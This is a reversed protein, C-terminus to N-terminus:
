SFVCVHAERAGVPGPCIGRAPQSADPCLGMRCGSCPAAGCALGFVGAPEGPAQLTAAPRGVAPALFDVFGSWLAVLLAVSVVAGVAVALVHSSSFLQPQILSHRCTGIGSRCHGPQFLSHIGRFLYMATFFITILAIAWFTYRAAPFEHCPGCGRM